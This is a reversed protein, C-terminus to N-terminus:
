SGGRPRRPKRGGAKSRRPGGAREAGGGREAAGAVSGGGVLALLGDRERVSLFRVRGRPVGQLRLDGIQVRKLSKVGYRMKAFMRRVERNRGERLVVRVVTQQPTRRVVRLSEPVARGESLYVGKRLKALDEASVVGSVHVVYTKPVGYRPHAMMNAFEGDNTLLLLGESDEDLRGVPYVRGAVQGRVLDSVRPRNERPDETCLVGRPKNFLYYLRRAPKVEQGNVRVRDGEQVRYGPALVVEGNVEVAGEQVLEDAKRRSAVGQESLWRNLRLGPREPADPAKAGRRAGAGAAAAEGHARAAVKPPVSGSSKRRGAKGTKRATPKRRSM